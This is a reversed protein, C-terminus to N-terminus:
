KSKHRRRQTLNGRNESNVTWISHTHTQTLIRITNEIDSRIWIWIAFHFVPRWGFFTLYILVASVNIVLRMCIKLMKFESIFAYVCLSKLSWRFELQFPRNDATWEWQIYTNIYVKTAIALCNMWKRFFLNWWHSNESTEHSLVFFWMWARQKNM